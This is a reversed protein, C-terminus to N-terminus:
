ILSFGILIIRTVYEVDRVTCNRATLGTNYIKHIWVSTPVSHEFVEM